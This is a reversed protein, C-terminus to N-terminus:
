FIPGTISEVMDDAMDAITQTSETTMRAPTKILYYTKGFIGKSERKVPKLLSNIILATIIVILIIDSIFAFYWLLFAIVLSLILM